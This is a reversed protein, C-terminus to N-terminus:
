PPPQDRTRVAAISSAMDNVIVALRAGTSNQLLHKLLTTKGAGLFGSLVTVPLATAGGGGAPRLASAAEQVAALAAPPTAGTSDAPLMAPPKAAASERAAIPAAYKQM